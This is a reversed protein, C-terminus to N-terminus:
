LGTSEPTCFCWCPGHTCLGGAVNDLEENNLQTKGQGHRAQFIDIFPKAEDESIEYGLEHAVRKGAETVTLTDDGRMKNLAEHFKKRLKEDSRLDAVLQETTKM